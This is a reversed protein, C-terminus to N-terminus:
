IGYHKNLLDIVEDKTITKWDFKHGNRKALDKLVQLNLNEFSEVAVDVVTLGDDNNCLLKINDDALEAIWSVNGGYFDDTLNYDSISVLKKISVEKKSYDIDGLVKTSLPIM